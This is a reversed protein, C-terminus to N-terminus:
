WSELLPALIACKALGLAAFDQRVSARDDAPIRELAAGVQLRKTVARWSRLELVDEWYAEESLYVHAADDLAVRWHGCRHVESCLEAEMIWDRARRRVLARLAATVGEPRAPGAFQALFTDLAETM